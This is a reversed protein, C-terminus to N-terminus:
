TDDNQEQLKALANRRPNVYWYVYDERAPLDLWGPKNENRVPRPAKDLERAVDLLAQMTDAAKHTEETADYWNEADYHKIARLRAIQEEVHKFDTM